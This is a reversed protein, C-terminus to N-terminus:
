PLDVLSFFSLSPSCSSLSLVKRNASNASWPQDISYTVVFADAAVFTQPITYYDRDMRGGSMGAATDVLTLSREKGDVTVSVSTDSLTPMM